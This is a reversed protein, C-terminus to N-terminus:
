ADEDEGTEQEKDKSFVRVFFIKIKEWYVKIMFLLGVISALALQFIFSGTGPDLYAHAFPPFTLYVIMIILFVTLVRKFFM